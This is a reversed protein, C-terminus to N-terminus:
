FSFLEKFGQVGGPIYGAYKCHQPTNSCLTILKLIKYVLICFNLMLTNLIAYCSVTLVGPDWLRTPGAAGGKGEGKGRGRGGEGEDRSLM